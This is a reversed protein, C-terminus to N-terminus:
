CNQSTESRAVRYIRWTLGASVLMLWAANVELSEEVFFSVLRPRILHLKEVASSSGWLTGALILLVTGPLRLWELFARWAAVRHKLFWLVGLAWLVGLWAKRIPGRFVANLAPVDYDTFDMERVFFTLYFLSVGGFLVRSGIAAGRACHFYFTGGVLLFLAQLNEMPGNEMAVSHNVMWWVLFLANWAVLPLGTWALLKWRSSHETALTAPASAAVVSKSHPMGPDSESGFSNVKGVM